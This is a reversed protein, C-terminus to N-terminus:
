LRYLKMKYLMAVASQRYKLIEAPIFFARSISVPVVNETARNPVHATPAADQMPPVDIAQKIANPAFILDVSVSEM